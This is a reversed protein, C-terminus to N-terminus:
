RRRALTCFAAAAHDRLLFARQSDSFAWGSNQAGLGEAHLMLICTVRRDSTTQLCDHIIHGRNFICAQMCTVSVVDLATRVGCAAFGMATVRLVTHVYM